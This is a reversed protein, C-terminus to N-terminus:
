TESTVDQFVYSSCDIPIEPAGTWEGDVVIGGPAEDQEWSNFYVGMTGRPAKTHVAECERMLRGTRSNNSDIAIAVGNAIYNTVAATIPHDYTEDNVVLEVGFINTVSGDRIVMDYLLDIGAAVALTDIYGRTTSNMLMQDMVCGAAAMALRAVLFDARIEDLQTRAAAETAVADDWGSTVTAALCTTACLLLETYEEDLGPPYFTKVGQLGEARMWEVFRQHRNKLQRLSRAVEAQGRNQTATGPERLDKLTTPSIRIGDRWTEGAYSVTRLTPAIEYHPPGERSNVRGRDRTYELVDFTVHVGPNPNAAMPWYVSLPTPVETDIEFVRSVALPRLPVPVAM